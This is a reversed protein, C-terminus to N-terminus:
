EVVMIKNPLSLPMWLRGRADRTINRVSSNKVPMPYVTFKMTAPDVRVLKNAKEASEEYWIKGTSDV